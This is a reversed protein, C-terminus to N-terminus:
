HRLTRMAPTYSPCVIRLASDRSGADFAVFQLSKGVKESFHDCLILQVKGRWVECVSIPEGFHWDLAFGLKDVYFRVSAEVNSVNIVPRAFWDIDAM